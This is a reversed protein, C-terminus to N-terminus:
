PWKAAGLAAAQDLLETHTFPCTLCKVHPSAVYITSPTLSPTEPHAHANPDKYFTATPM